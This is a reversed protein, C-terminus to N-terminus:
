RSVFLHNWPMFGTSVRERYGRPELWSSLADLEAGHDAELLLAPRCAALVQQAGELVPLEAGEVDIKCFSVTPCGREQWVEDLTRMPVSIIRGTARGKKAHVLSAYASDNALRIDAIGGTDGAAAAVVEVNNLGNLAINARLKESTQPVPEFAWVAGHRGVATALAVAYMGINAGVDIAISAPTALDRVAATEAAEYAGYLLLLRAIEERYDVKVRGGGPLSVILGGSSRPLMAPLMRDIVFQKFHTLPPRTAYLRLPSTMWLRIDDLLSGYHVFPTDAL